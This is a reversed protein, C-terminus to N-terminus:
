NAASQKLYHRRKRVVLLIIALAAVSALVLIRVVLRQPSRRPQVVLPAIQGYDAAFMEDLNEGREGWNKEDQEIRRQLQEAQILEARLEAEVSEISEGVQMAIAAQALERNRTRAPEDSNYSAVLYARAALRNANISDRQEPALQSALLDGLAALLVPSDHNGFRLMGILGRIGAEYEDVSEEASKNEDRQHYLYEDFRMPFQLAHTRNTRVDKQLLYEVLRKQYIERGFHAKPNIALAAEIHEIGEELRGAHILFTALNAESEYRGIEPWRSIKADIVEIAKDHQNLKEYAVAIDDYDSPSRQDVPTSERDKIRWRYYHKSHRPFYGVISELATPM